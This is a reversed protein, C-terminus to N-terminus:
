LQFCNKIIQIDKKKETKNNLVANTAAYVLYWRKHNKFFPQQNKIKRVYM